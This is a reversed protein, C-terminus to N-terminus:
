VGVRRDYIEIQLRPSFRYKYKKCLEIIKPALKLYEDRTKAQPMLLIRDHVDLMPIIHLIEVVDDESEVVFKFFAKSCKIFWEIVKPKIRAEKPLGSNSLKPSVHYLSIYKDFEPTPIITGNTEVEIFLERPIISTLLKLFETLKDMWLLPEGGTLVIHAGYLLECPYKLVENILEEYSYQKGKVWVDRTDCYRCSLNCGQVRIFLAPTGVTVGEGQISYFIESINIM